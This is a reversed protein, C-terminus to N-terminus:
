YMWVDICMNLEWSVNQKWMIQRNFYSQNGICVYMCLCALVNRYSYAICYSMSINICNWIWICWYMPISVLIFVDQMMRKTLLKKTRHLLDLRTTLAESQWPLLEIWCGGVCHFRLPPLHLMTSCLVYSFCRFIGGNIRRNKPRKSKHFKEAM